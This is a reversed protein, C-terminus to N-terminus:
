QQLAHFDHDSYISVYFMVFGALPIGFGGSREPKTAGAPPTVHSKSWQM